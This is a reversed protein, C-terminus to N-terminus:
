NGFKYAQPKAQPIFEISMDSQPFVRCALVINQSEEDTNIHKKNMKKTWFTGSNVKIKCVGCGGQHCGKPAIGKHLVLSDMLHKEDYCTVKKDGNITVEYRTM